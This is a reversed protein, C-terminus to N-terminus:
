SLDFLNKWGRTLSYGLYLLLVTLLWLKQRPTEFANLVPDLKNLKEMVYVTFFGAGLSIFFAAAAADYYELAGLILSPGLGLALIFRL